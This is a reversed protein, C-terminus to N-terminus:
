AVASSVGAYDARGWYVAAHALTYPLLAAAAEAQERAATRAGEVDRTAHAARAGAAASRVAALQAAM